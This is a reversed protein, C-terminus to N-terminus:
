GDWDLRVKLEGNDRMQVEVVQGMYVDNNHEVEM